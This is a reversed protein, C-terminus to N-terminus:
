TLVTGVAPRRTETSPPLVLGEAANNKAKQALLSRVGGGAMLLSATPARDLVVISSPM